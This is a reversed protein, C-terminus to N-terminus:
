PSAALAAQVLSTQMLGSSLNEIETSNSSPSLNTLTFSPTGTKEVMLGDLMVKLTLNGSESYM